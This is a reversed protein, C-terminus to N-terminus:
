VCCIKFTRQKHYVELLVHKVELVVYTQFHTAYPLGRVCYRSSGVFCVIYIQFHTTYPLGGVCCRFGGVCCINSLTHNVELPKGYTYWLCGLKLMHPTYTVEQGDYLM